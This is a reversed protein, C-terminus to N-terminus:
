KTWSKSPDDLLDSIKTVYIVRRGAAFGRTADLINAEFGRSKFVQALTNEFDYMNSWTAGPEFIFEYDLFTLKGKPGPYKLGPVRKKTQPKAKPQPKEYPTLIKRLPTAQTPEATEMKSRQMGREVLYKLFGGMNYTAM